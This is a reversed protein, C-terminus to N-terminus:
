NLQRGDLPVETTRVFGGARSTEFESVESHHAVLKAGPCCASPLSNAVLHRDRVSRAKSLM